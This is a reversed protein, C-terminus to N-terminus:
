RYNPKARFVKKKAYGQNARLTAEDIGQQYIAMHYGAINVDTWEQNPMAFLRALAGSTIADKWEEYVREDVQQADQTPKLSVLVNVLSGVVPIRDFRFSDTMTQMYRGPTGTWNRWSNVCADMEEETTPTLVAQQEGFRITEVAVIKTDVPYELTYEPQDALTYFPALTVRWYKTQACFTIIAQRINELILPTPCGPLAVQVYPLWQNYTVSSM